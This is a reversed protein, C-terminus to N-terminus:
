FRCGVLCSCAVKSTVLFGLYKSLSQKVKVKLQSHNYTSGFGTFTLCNELFYRGVGKRTQSAQLLFICM